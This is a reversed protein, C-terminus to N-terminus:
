YILYYILGIMVSTLFGYVLVPGAITFLKAGVGFVYGEHKFEIAASVISNSFGTIPIISGAGAFRGIEDYIGVGTLFAGLFVMTAVTAANADKPNLGLKMYGIAIIQAIACIIGGVFFAAVANRFVKPKPKVQDVLQQYNQADYDKKSNEIQSSLLDKEM